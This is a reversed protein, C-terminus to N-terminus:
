PNLLLAGGITTRVLATITARPDPDRALRYGPTRMAAPLLPRLLSDLQHEGEDALLGRLAGALAGDRDLDLHFAADDFAYRLGGFRYDLVSPGDIDLPPDATVVLGAEDLRVVLATTPRLLVRALKSEYLVRRGQGDVPFRALVAALASTDPEHAAAPEYTTLVRRLVSAAVANELQGFGDVQVEGSQLHYRAGELELRLHLGPVDLHLRRASAFSLERRDAHLSLTDRPDMALAVKAYGGPLQAQLVTVRTPDPLPAPPPPLLRLGLRQAWAPARPLAFVRVLHGLLAETSPGVPEPERYHAESLGAVRLRLAGDAFAYALEHVVFAPLWKAATPGALSLGASSRLALGARGLELELDGGKDVRVELPGWPQRQGFSLLADHDAAPSRDAPWFWPMARSFLDRLVHGLLCDELDGAAPHAALDLTFPLFTLAAGRVAVQVDLDPLRVVLGASPGPQGASLALCAGDRRLDLHLPREADAFLALPGLVPLDLSLLAPQSPAPPAPPPPTAAPLALRSTLADLVARPVLHAHLQRALAHLLPGSPPVTALAVRGGEPEWRLGALAFEGLPAAEPPRVQLPATAGAELADPLRRATLWAGPPLSLDVAFGLREALKGPLVHGLSWTEEARADPWLPVSKRLLPIFFAELALASLARLYDGPPASADVTFARDPLSYQAARLELALGLDPAALLLARESTASMATPGLAAALTDAPDMRLQLRGVVPLDVDVLAASRRALSAEDLPPPAGDALGLGRPALPAVHVRTLAALVQQGFPGLPPDGDVALAGDEWRYEVRRLTAPPLYPLGEFRLSLGAPALLVLADERHHLEVDAGAETDLAIRRDGGLPQQWLTHREQRGPPAILGGRKLRDIPLRPQLHRAVARQVLARLLPGLSPETQVDLGVHEGLDVHVRKLRLEALEPFQDAYLYLGRSSELRLGGPHKAVVVEDGRDTCLALSSFPGLPARFLARTRSPMADASVRLTALGAVLAAKTASFLGAAGGEGERALPHAPTTTEGPDDPWTEESMDERAPRLAALLAALRARRDPDAFLDYGPAAMAAPLRARLWRTAFWAALRLLARRLPGLAGPRVELRQEAFVYRVSLAALGLGFIRLLMPRTLELTLADGRLELALAADPDVALRLGPRRWLQRMGAKGHAPLRALGRDALSASGPTWGLAHRMGSCLAVTLLRDFAPGLADADTEVVGDVLDVHLGRLTVTPLGEARLELGGGPRVDLAHRDLALQLPRALLLTADVDGLVPVSARGLEERPEPAPAPEDHPTRYHLPEPHPM